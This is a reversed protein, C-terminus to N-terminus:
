IPWCNVKFVLFFHQMDGKLTDNLCSHQWHAMMRRDNLHDRPSVAASSLAASFSDDPRRFDRRSLSSSNALFIVVVSARDSRNSLRPSSRATSLLYITNIENVFLVRSNRLFGYYQADYALLEWDYNSLVQLPWNVVPCLATFDARHVSTAGPEQSLGSHVIRIIPSLLIRKNRQMPNAM